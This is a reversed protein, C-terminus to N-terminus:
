SVQRMDPKVPMLGSFSQMSHVNNGAARASHRGPIDYKGVQPPFGNGLRLHPLLINLDM